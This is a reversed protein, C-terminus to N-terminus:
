PSFLLPCPSPPQSSPLDPFWIYANGPRKRQALHALWEYDTGANQAWSLWFHGEVQERFRNGVHTVAM